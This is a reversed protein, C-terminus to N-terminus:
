RTPRASTESADQASVHMPGRSPASPRFSARAVLLFFPLWLAVLAYPEQWADGPALVFTRLVEIATFWVAVTLLFLGYRGLNVPRVLFLFFPVSMLDYPETLLGDRLAVLSRTWDYAFIPVQWLQDCAIIVMVTVVVADARPYGVKILFLYAGIFLGAWILLHVYGVIVSSYLYLTVALVSPVVLWPSAFRPFRRLPARALFAISPSLVDALLLVVQGFLSTL